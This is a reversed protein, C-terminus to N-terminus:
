RVVGPLIGLLTDGVLAGCTVALAFLVALGFAVGTTPQPEPPCRAELLREIRHQLVTSGTLAASPAYSAHRAIAVIATALDDGHIGSAIAEDDRAEELAELWARLRRRAQPWPWQLDTAFQAAAIRLPDRHRRHADEHALAAALADNDLLEAVHPAVVIRPHLLGVVAIPAQARRSFSYVMRVVARTWLAAVVIVVTWGATSLREDAAAPEQIAWGILMAVCTAGVVLPAIVARWARRERAIGDALPSAALRALPGILWVIPGCLLAVLAVLLIERDVVLREAHPL